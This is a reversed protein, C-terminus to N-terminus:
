NLKILIKTQTQNPIKKDKEERPVKKIHAIM